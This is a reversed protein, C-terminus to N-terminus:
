NLGKRYLQWLLQLKKNSPDKFSGYENSFTYLLYLHHTHETLYMMILAYLDITKQKEDDDYVVLEPTIRSIEIPYNIICPLLNNLNTLQKEDIFNINKGKTHKKEKSFPYLLTNYESVIKSKKDLNKFTHEELLNYTNVIHKIEETTLPQVIRYPNHPKLTSSIRKCTLISRSGPNYKCQDIEVPLKENIDFTSLIANHPIIIGLGPKNLIIYKKQPHNLVVTPDPIIEGEHFVDVLATFTVDTEIHCQRSMHSIDFLSHHEISLIKHILSEEFCVGIYKKLKFMLLSEDLEYFNDVIKLRTTFTKITKM